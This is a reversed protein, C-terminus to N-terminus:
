FRVQVQGVARNNAVTAGEEDFLTYAAQIKLAEGRVLWQLGGTVGTLRDGTASAVPDLQEVRGLLQVPGPPLTWRLLAYWGATRVGGTERSLYEGRAEVRGRRLVMELGWRVDDGHDTIAAGLDLETGLTVVARAGLLLRGDDNRPQNRGEGNYAGGQVLLRSGGRWDVRVGIDRNTALGVALPLDPLELDAPNLLFERSLPSKHQGALVTWPGTAAELYLDMTSVSTTGGGSALEVLARFKVARSAQGTIGVRAHNFRFVASDDTAEVRPQFYGDIRVPTTGSQAGLPALPVLVLVFAALRNVQM